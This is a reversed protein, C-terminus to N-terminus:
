FLKGPLSTLQVISFREGGNTNRTRIIRPRSLFYSLRAVLGSSCGLCVGDEEPSQMYTFGHEICLYFIFYICIHTHTHSHTHMAVPVYLVCACACVCM